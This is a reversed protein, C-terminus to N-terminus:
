KDWSFDTGLFECLKENHPKFYDILQKRTVANMAQHKPGSNCNFQRYEELHWKPLELFKLVRDFSGAADAFFDESKLILFQERPFLNFWRKLQDVYIGRRLYSYDFYSENYYKENEIMNELLENSLGEEKEIAAEFSLNEKKKRVMDKYHSYARDVPNRLLAILKISPTLELIRRPVHPHFIYSPSAEGTISNDAQFPFCSRYWDSGREFNADFFHVEKKVPHKIQPHQILYNYLSCTGGKQSGIIIFSPMTRLSSTLVRYPELGWRTLLRLSKEPEKVSLRGIARKARKM